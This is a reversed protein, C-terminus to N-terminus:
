QAVHVLAGWMRLPRLLGFAAGLHWTDDGSMALSEDNAFRRRWTRKKQWAFSTAQKHPAPASKPRAGLCVWNPYMPCPLGRRLTILPFWVLWSLHCTENGSLATQMMQLDKAGPPEKKWLKVGAGV